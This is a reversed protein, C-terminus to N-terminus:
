KIESISEALKKYLIEPIRRYHKGANNVAVVKVEAEIYLKSDVYLRQSFTVYLQTLKEVKTKITVEDNLKAPLKYKVNIEAVPLVIDAKKLEVLNLNLDDCFSIRAKEFWRLYAGHWVVGYADTDAYYVREKLVNEM